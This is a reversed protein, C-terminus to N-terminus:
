LAIHNIRKKLDKDIWSTDWTILIFQDILGENILAIMRQTVKKQWSGPMNAFEDLVCLRMPSDQCLAVQLGCYALLQETGCFVEHSIFAGGEMRGVQGDKFILPSKLIDDTFKKSLGSMKL